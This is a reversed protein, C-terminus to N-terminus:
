KQKRESDSYKSALGHVCVVSYKKVWTVMRRTSKCNWVCVMHVSSIYIYIQTSVLTKHASYDYVVASDHLERKLKEMGVFECAHVSEMGCEKRM